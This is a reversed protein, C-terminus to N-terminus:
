NWKKTNCMEDVSITLLIYMLASTGLRKRNQSGLYDSKRRPAKLVDLKQVKKFM